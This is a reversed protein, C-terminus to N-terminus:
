GDVHDARIYGVHDCYFWKACVESNGDHQIKYTKWAEHEDEYGVQAFTATTETREVCRANWSPIYLGPVLYIENVEFKKM